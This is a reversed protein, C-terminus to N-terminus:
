KSEAKNHMHQEELEEQVKFLNELLKKNEEELEGIKKLLEQEREIYYEKLQLGASITKVNANCESEEIADDDVPYEAVEANGFYIKAKGDNIKLDVNVSDLNDFSFSSVEEKGWHNNIKSNLAIQNKKTRLSIHLPIDGNEKVFNIEEWDHKLEIPGIIYHQVDINEVFDVLDDIKKLLEQERVRYYEKLHQDIHENKEEKIIRDCESKEILDDDVPYEAVETDNCYIKAKGDNIKLDVNM